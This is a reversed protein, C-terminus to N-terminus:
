TKGKKAKSIEHRSPPYNWLKQVLTAPNSM